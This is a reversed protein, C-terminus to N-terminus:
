PSRRFGEVSIEVFIENKLRKSSLPFHVYFLRFRM